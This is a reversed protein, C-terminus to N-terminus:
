LGDLLKLVDIIVRDFSFEIYLKYNIKDICIFQIHKKEFSM